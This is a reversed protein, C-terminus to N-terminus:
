APSPRMAVHGDGSAADPPPPLQVAPDSAPEHPQDLSTTSAVVIRANGNLLEIEGRSARLWADLVIGKDIVRELVDPVCAYEAGLRSEM